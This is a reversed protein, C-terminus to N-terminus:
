FTSNLLIKDFTGFFIVLDWECSCKVVVKIQQELPFNLNAWFDLIGKFHMLM